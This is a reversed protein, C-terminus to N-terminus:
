RKGFAHCVAIFLLIGACAGSTAYLATDNTFEIFCLPSM